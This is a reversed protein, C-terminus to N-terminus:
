YRDTMKEEDSSDLYTFGLEVLYTIEGAGSHTIDSEISLHPQFVMRFKELRIEM